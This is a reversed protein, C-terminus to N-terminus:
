KDPSAPAAVKSDEVKSHRSRASASWDACGEQQFMPDYSSVQSGEKAQLDYWLNVALNREAPSASIVAHHWGRPLFLAEGEDLECITPSAKKVQTPDPSANPSPSPSAHSSFPAPSPQPGPPPM